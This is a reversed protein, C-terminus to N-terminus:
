CCNCRRHLGFRRLRGVRDGPLLAMRGLRAPLKPFLRDQKVHYGSPPVAVWSGSALRATQVGRRRNRERSEVHCIRERDYDERLPRGVKEVAPEVPFALEHVPKM